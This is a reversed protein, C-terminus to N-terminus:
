DWTPSERSVYIIKGDSQKHSDLIGMACLGNLMDHANSYANVLLGYNRDNEVIMKYNNTCADHVAENLTIQKQANTIGDVEYNVTVTANSAWESKSYPDIVQYFEKDYPSPHSENIQAHQKNCENKKSEDIGNRKKEEKCWKNFSVLSFFIDDNLATHGNEEIEKIMEKIQGINENADAIAKTVEKDKWVSEDEDLIEKWEEDSITTKGITRSGYVEEVFKRVAAEPGNINGTAAATSEGPIAMSITIGYQKEWGKCLEQFEEPSYEGNYKGGVYPKDMTFDLEIDVNREVENMSELVKKWHKISEEIQKKTYKM